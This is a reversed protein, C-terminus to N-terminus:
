GLHKSSASPFAKALVPSDHVAKWRRTRGRLGRSYIFAALDADGVAATQIGVSDKKSAVFARLQEDAGSVLMLPLTSGAAPPANEKVQITEVTMGLAKAEREIALLLNDAAERRAAATDAAALDPNQFLKAGGFAARGATDGSVVIPRFAAVAAAPTESKTSLVLRNFKLRALQRLLKRQDALSWSAPGLPSDFDM